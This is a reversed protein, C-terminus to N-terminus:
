LLLQVLLLHDLLMLLLVLLFWLLRCVVVVVVTLVELAVVGGLVGRDLGVLGGSGCNTPECGM